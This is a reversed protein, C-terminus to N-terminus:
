KILNLIEIDIKSKPFRKQMKNITKRANGRFEASYLYKLSIMEQYVKSYIDKNDNFLNYLKSLLIKSIKGDYEVIEIIIELAAELANANFDKEISWLYDVDSFCTRNNKDDISITIEQKDFIEVIQKEYGDMRSKQIFKDISGIPKINNIMLLAESASIGQILFCEIQKYGLRQMAKTRHQGDVILNREKGSQKDKEIVVVPPTCTREDWNEIIEEVWDEDLERQAEHRIQLEDINFRKIYKKVEFIGSKTNDDKAKTAGKFITAAM